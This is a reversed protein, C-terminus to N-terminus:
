CEAQVRHVRRQRAVGGDEVGGREENSGNNPLLKLVVRTKSNKVCRLLGYLLSFLLFYWLFYSIKKLYKKM